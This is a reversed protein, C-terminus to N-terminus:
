SVHCAFPYVIICSYYLGKRGCTCQLDPDNHSYSYVCTDNSIVTDYKCRCYGAPCVYFQM